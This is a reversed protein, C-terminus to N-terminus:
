RVNSASSLEVNSRFHFMVPVKIGLEKAIALRHNGEGVKVGNFYLTCTSGNRTCIAHYWTNTQVAFNGSSVEINSNGGIINIQSGNDDFLFYIPSNNEVGNGRPDILYQRKSPLSAINFWVEM